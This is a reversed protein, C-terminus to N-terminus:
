KGKSKNSLKVADGQVVVTNASFLIFYYYSEYCHVNILTDGGSSNLADNVATGIDPRGIMFLGLVSYATDSGKTKGLNVDITKGDLPTIASTLCVPTTSCGAFSLFLAAFVTIILKNM